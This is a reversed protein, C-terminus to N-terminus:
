NERGHKLVFDLLDQRMEHAEDDSYSLLWIQCNELLKKITSLFDQSENYHKIILKNYALCLGKYRYDKLAMEYIKKREEFDNGVADICDEWM